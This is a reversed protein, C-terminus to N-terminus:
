RMPYHSKARFFDRKEACLVPSDVPMRQPLGIFVDGNKPAEPASVCEYGCCDRKKNVSLKIKTALVVNEFNGYDIFFRM